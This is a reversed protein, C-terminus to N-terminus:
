WRMKLESFAKKLSGKSDDNKIEMDGKIYVIQYFDSSERPPRGTSYLTSITKEQQSDNPIKPLLNFDFFSNVDFTIACGCADDNQHDKSYFRWMNLSDDEPLFCGVLVPKGEEPELGLYRWILKGENPDNLSNIHGLRLPSRELLLANGVVLSTYHTMKPWKVRLTNLIKNRIITIEPSLEYREAQDQCEIADFRLEPDATTAAEKFLEKAKSYNKDVGQGNLYMLGLGLQAPEYLMNAAKSYWDFAKKYDKKVGLGYKYIDGLNCLAVVDNKEAAKIFWDFATKYDIKVGKGYKYIWGM